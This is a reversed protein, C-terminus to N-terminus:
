SRLRGGKNPIRDSASMVRRIREIQERGGRNSFFENLDGVPQRVRVPQVTPQEDQVQRTFDIHIRDERSLVGGDANFIYNRGTRNWNDRMNKYEGFELWSCTVVYSNQKSIGFVSEVYEHLEAPSVLDGDLLDEILSGSHGEKVLYYKDLHSHIFDFFEKKERRDM